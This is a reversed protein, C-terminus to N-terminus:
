KGAGDLLNWRGLVAHGDSAVIDDILNVFHDAIRAITAASFAAPHYKWDLVFGDGPVVDLTLDYEGLQHLGDVVRFPWTDRLEDALNNLHGPLSFNQYNYVVQFVPSRLDAGRSGLDRVIHHFPYAGHETAEFVTSQLRQAFLTFEDSEVPKSRIPLTNIFYGVVPDFRELPRGSVPMGIVIDEQGTYRHLLTKFVTLFFIGPSIENSTAFSTVADVQEKSLRRTCVEGEHPTDPALTAETPLGTLPIRGALERKWFNRDREARACQDEGRRHTSQQATARHAQQRTAQERPVSRDRETAVHAASCLLRGRCGPGTDCARSPRRRLWCGSLAAVLHLLWWACGPLRRCLPRRTPRHPFRGGGCRLGGLWDGCRGCRRLRGTVGPRRGSRRGRRSQASRRSSRGSGRRWGAPSSTCSRWCTSATRM